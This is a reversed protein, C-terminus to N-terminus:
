KRLNKEQLEKMMLCEAVGNKYLDTICGVEKFGNKIYFRKAGPNFDAVVLFLKSSNYAEEIYKLFEKGIGLGRFEEKVAIIHLYPFSHFAGNEIIWIFGLVTNERNVAVSIESKGIGESIANLLKNEDSFYTRGLESKKLAIICENLHKNEAEIINIDM